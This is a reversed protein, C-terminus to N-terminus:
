RSSLRLRSKVMRQVPSVILSSPEAIDSKTNGRM